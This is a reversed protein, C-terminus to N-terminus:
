NRPTVNGPLTHDSASIGARWPPAPRVTAGRLFPRRVADLVCRLLSQVPRSVRLQVIGGAVTEKPARRLSAMGHRRYDAVWAAVLREEVRCAAAAEACSWGDVIIRQILQGRQARTLIRRKGSAM